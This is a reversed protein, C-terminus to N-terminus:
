AKLNRLPTVFNQPIELPSAKNKRFNGPPFYFCLILYTRLGGTLKKEPIAWKNISKQLFLKYLKGYPFSNRLINTEQYVSTFHHNDSSGLKM